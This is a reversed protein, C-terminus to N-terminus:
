AKAETDSESAPKDEATPTEAAPADEEEVVKTAEVKKPAPTPKKPAEETEMATRIDDEIDSTARKFERMSKGFSHFLEPLRKAGFFLLVVLFILILEWSSLNQLFALTHM